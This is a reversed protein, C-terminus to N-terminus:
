IKVSRLVTRSRGSLDRLEITLRYTGHRLHGVVNFTVSTRVALTQRRAVAYTHGNRSLRAVLGVSSSTATWTGPAFILTCVATAAASARCKVTGPPGPPGAPGRPGAPGQAGSPGAPGTAGVPGQTGQPGVPGAPGQSGPPGVLGQPGAPGQLGPPGAPMPVGNGNLDIVVPNGANSITLQAFRPGVTSPLFRLKLNCSQNRALTHGSCDERTIWYDDAAPGSLSAALHNALGTNTVTVAVPPSIGDTPTNPFVPAVVGLEYPQGGGTLDIVIPASDAPTVTLQASATGRSTPKFGIAMTCTDEYNLARGTCDDNVSFAGADPGSLAVSDISTPATGTSTLVVSQTPASGNLLTEGFALSSPAGSLGPPIDIGTGILDYRSSTTFGDPYRQTVMMSA